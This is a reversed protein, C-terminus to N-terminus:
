ALPLKRIGINRHSYGILTNRHKRPATCSMFTKDAINLLLNPLVATKLQELECFAKETLSHNGTASLDLHRLAKCKSNIFAFGSDVTGGNITLRTINNAPIATLRNDPINFFQAPATLTHM